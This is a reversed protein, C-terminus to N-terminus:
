VSLSFYVTTGHDTSSVPWLKGAHRHVIMAATLLAIGAGTMETGTQLRRFLATLHEETELEFGIGNSRVYFCDSGNITDMGFEVTPTTASGSLKLANSLLCNLAIKITDPDCRIVATAKINLTANSESAIMLNSLQERVLETLNVAQISMPMTQLQVLLQLDQVIVNQRHAANRIKELYPRSASPPTSNELDALLLDAFGLITMVPTRLDHTVTYLLMEQQLELSQIRARLVNLEADNM